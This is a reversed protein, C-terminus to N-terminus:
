KILISEAFDLERLKKIVNANLKGDIIITLVPDPFLDPDDSIVQRIVINNDALVKTVGAVIGKKKPDARLEIVDFGFERAANGMFARPELKYFIHFLKDDKTIAKATDIVVRRDVGLARAIKAPPLEINGVYIKAKQDVKLGIRLFETAVQKRGRANQFFKELLDHM